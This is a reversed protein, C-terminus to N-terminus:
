KFFIIKKVLQIYEGKRKTVIRVTSFTLLSFFFRITQDIGFSYIALCQTILDFEILIPHLVWTKCLGILSQWMLM